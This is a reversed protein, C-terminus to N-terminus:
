LCKLVQSRSAEVRKFLCLCCYGRKGKRIASGKKSLRPLNKVEKQYYHHHYPKVKPYDKFSVLPLDLNSFNPLLFPPSTLPLSDVANAQIVSFIIFNQSIKM